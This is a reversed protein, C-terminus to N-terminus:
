HRRGDVATLHNDQLRSAGGSVMVVINKVDKEKIYRAVGEINRAYLTTPPTHEDVPTSNENGM